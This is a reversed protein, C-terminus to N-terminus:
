QLITYSQNSFLGQTFVISDGTNFDEVMFNFEGSVQNNSCNTINLYGDVVFGAFSSSNKTYTFLVVQNENGTAENVDVYDDGTVVCNGSVGNNLDTATIIITEGNSNSARIDLRKGEDQTQADVGKFLTNTFSSGTWTQGDVKVTFSANGNSPNDDDDDDKNCAFSSIIITALLLRSINKM